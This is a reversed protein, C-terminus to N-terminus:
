RQAQRSVPDLVFGFWLWMSPQFWRTSLPSVPRASLLRGSSSTSSLLLVRDVSSLCRRITQFSQEHVTPRLKYVRVQNSVEAAMITGSKIATQGCQIIEVQATKYITNDYANYCAEVVLDKRPSVTHAMTTNTFFTGPNHWLSSLRSTRSRSHWPVLFDKQIYAACQVARFM